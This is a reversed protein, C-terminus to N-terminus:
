RRFGNVTSDQTALDVHQRFLATTDSKMRAVTFPSGATEALRRAHGEALFARLRVRKKKHVPFMNSLAMKKAKAM